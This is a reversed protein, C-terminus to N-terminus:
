ALARVQASAFVPDIHTAIYAAFDRTEPYRSAVERVYDLVRPLDRLYQVKGDRYYLRCFIGLVKIHRQLGMLDFRRLFGAEDMGPDFGAELLMQRYGLAWAAVRAPAWAIYCDKLLSVLDYTVPGWMADQFDLIGPNDRPMVMLNRSHYDRHVFCQPQDLAAEVLAAFLGELLALTDGDPVLGLHRALFWDPMLSMERRLYAGDYPPLASASDRGATQIRLLATLADRYLAEVADGQALAPLYLETGLDTLLLLGAEPYRALVRPVNLGFGALLAGVQLYPRLDEKDPPADMVIFSDSGRSVRFYRRFSADSSAPAIRADSFGLDDRLWHTLLTLRTDAPVNADM